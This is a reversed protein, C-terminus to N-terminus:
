MLGVSDVIRLGFFASRARDDTEKFNRINLTIRVEINLDELHNGEKRNRKRFGVHM